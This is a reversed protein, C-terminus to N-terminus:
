KNLKSLKSLSLLIEKAFEKTYMFVHVRDFCHIAEFANLKNTHIVFMWCELSM